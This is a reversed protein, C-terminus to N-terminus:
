AELLFAVRAVRAEDFHRRRAAADQIAIALREGHGGRHFRDPRDRGVRLEGAGLPALECGQEGQLAIFKPLLESVCRAIEDIELALHRRIDGLADLREPQLAYVLMAFVPPVVRAAFYCSVDDAEGPDIVVTLLANLERVLCAEAALRSAPADDLVPEAADDLVHLRDAFRLVSAVEGQGDVALDL